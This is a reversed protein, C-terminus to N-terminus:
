RARQSRLPAQIHRRTELVAYCRRHPRITARVLPLVVEAAARRRQPRRHGFGSAGHNRYVVGGASIGLKEAVRGIFTGLPGDGEQASSAAGGVAVAGVALVVVAAVIMLLGKM